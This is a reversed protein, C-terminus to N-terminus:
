NRKKYINVITYCVMALGTLGGVWMAGHPYKEFAEPLGALATLCSSLDWKGMRAETAKPLSASGNGYNNCRKSSSLVFQWGSFRTCSGLCM